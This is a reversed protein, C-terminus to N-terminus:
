LGRQMSEMDKRDQERKEEDRDTDNVAEQKLQLLHAKSVYPVNFVAPNLSDKVIVSVSVLCRDRWLDEFSLVTSSTSTVIEIPDGGYLITLKKKPQALDDVAHKSILGPAYDEVAAAVKLANERSCEIVIDLDNVGGERDELYLLVAHGGIVVYKAGQAHLHALFVQECQSLCPSYLMDDIM